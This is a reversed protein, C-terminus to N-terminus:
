DAYELPSSSQATYFRSDSHDYKRKFSLHRRVRRPSEDEYIVHGYFILGYGPEAFAHYLAQNNPNWRMSPLKFILDASEGAGLRLPGIENRGDKTFPGEEIGFQSSTVLRLDLASGVVLCPTEGVNALTYCVEIVENDTLKLAYADRLRMRPRHTAVFEAEIGSVTRRLQIAQFWGVGILAATFLALVATFPAVPDSLAKQPWSEHLPRGATTTLPIPATVPAPPATKATAPNLSTQSPQPQALWLAAIQLVFGFTLLALGWAMIRRKRREHREFAPNVAPVFGGGFTGSAGIDVTTPERFVRVVEIAVLWAGAIDATLGITGLVAADM